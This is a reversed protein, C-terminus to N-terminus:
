SAAKVPIQRPPQEASKPLTVSLIGNKVIAVAKDADVRVGLRVSRSFRTSARERRHASYGEPPDVNREGSLTLVDQRITLQIDRESLGPVEARIVLNPGADWANLRTWSGFPTAGADAEEFLHAMRRGLGGLGFLTRETIPSVM